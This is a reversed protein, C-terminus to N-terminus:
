EHSLSLSHPMSFMSRCSNSANAARMRADIRGFVIPCRHISADSRNM